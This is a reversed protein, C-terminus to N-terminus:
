TSFHVKVVRRTKPSCKPELQARLIAVERRLL